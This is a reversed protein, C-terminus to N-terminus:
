QHMGKNMSFLGVESGLSGQYFNVLYVYKRGMLRVKEESLSMQGKLEKEERM